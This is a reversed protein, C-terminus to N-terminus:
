RIRTIPSRVTTACIAWVTVTATLRTSIRYPRAHTKMPVSVTRTRMTTRISHVITALTVSGTATRTPGDNALDYTGLSCDDCTDNDDDSCRTADSPHSDSADAVNDGDDDTDCDNGLGDGDPDPSFTLPDADVGDYCGDNDDDADCDNGLGDGDPDASVIMPAPDVGNECGDGDIDTDNCDATGDGDSDIDPVNCGCVGQVDKLPDTPCEDCADGKGDAEAKSLVEIEYWGTGAPASNTIIQVCSAQAFAPPLSSTDFTIVDGDQVDRYFSVWYYGPQTCDTNNSVALVHATQGTNSQAITLRIESIVHVGGLDVTLGYSGAGSPYWATAADGDVAEDTEVQNTIADLAPQYLALNGASDSDAQDANPTDPCNDIDNCVGDGDPDNLVTDPCLDCDDPILDGDRDLRDDHGLCADVDDCVNDNDADNLPDAVCEDCADGINDGDTDAQNANAVSVCNDVDNLVGDGDNDQLEFAGIDCRPGSPRSVGRQDENVANGAV